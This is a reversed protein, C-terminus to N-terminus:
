QTVLGSCLLQWSSSEYWVSHPLFLSVASIWCGLSVRPNEEVTATADAGLEPQLCASGVGSTYILKVSLLKDAAPIIGASVHLLM